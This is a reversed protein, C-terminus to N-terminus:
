IISRPTDQPPTDQPPTDQPPTHPPTHPPSTDTNEVSLKLKDYKAELINYKDTLDNFKLEFESKMNTILKNIESKWEVNNITNDTQQTEQTEQTEQQSQQKKQKLKGLLQNVNLNVPPTINNNNNLDFTVRKNQKDHNSIPTDEIILKVPPPTSESTTTSTFLPTSTTSTTPATDDIPTIWDPPKDSYTNSIRQLENARDELTQNLITDINQIPEDEITDSFDISKPKNPNLMTNYQKKYDDFSSDNKSKKVNDSPTQFGRGHNSPPPKLVITNTEIEKEENSIFQYCDSLICKNMHQLDTYNFRKEHYEELRNNFFNVFTQSVVAQRNFENELIGILLNINPKSHIPM